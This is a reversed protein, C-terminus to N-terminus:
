RTFKVTYVFASDRSDRSLIESSAYGKALRFKSIEENAARDAFTEELVFASPFIRFRFTDAQDLVPQPRIHSTTVCASLGLAGVVAFANVLRRMQGGLTVPDDLTATQRADAVSCDESAEDRQV